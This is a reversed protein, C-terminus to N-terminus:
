NRQSQGYSWRRLYDIVSELTEINDKCHALITNCNNCLLGRVCNGCSEKGACCKHDHDVHLSKTFNSADKKCILCKNNQLILIKDYQEPTLNYKKLHSKRSLYKTREPNKKQWSITKESLLKSNKKRYNKRDESTRNHYEKMYEKNNAVCKKCATRKGDKKYKDKWFNSIPLNLKCKSCNKTDM